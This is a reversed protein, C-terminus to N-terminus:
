ITESDDTITTFRIVDNAALESLDIKAANEGMGKMVAVDGSLTYTVEEGNFTDGDIKKIESKEEGKRENEKEGTTIRHRRNRSNPLSSMILM